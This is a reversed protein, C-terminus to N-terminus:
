RDIEVGSLKAARVACPECLISLKYRDEPVNDWDGGFENELMDDCDSCYANILNDDDLTWIFGIGKEALLANPIHSCVFSMPQPGHDCCQIVDSM